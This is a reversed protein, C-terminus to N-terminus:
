IVIDGREDATTMAAKIIDYLCVLGEISLIIFGLGFFFTLLSGIVFTALYCLGAFWHGSIFRHVGFVGVFFAVLIYVIKNVKNQKVTEEMRFGGKKDSQECM